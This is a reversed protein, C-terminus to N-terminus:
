SPTGDKFDDEGITISFDYAFYKLCAKRKKYFLAGPFLKIVKM